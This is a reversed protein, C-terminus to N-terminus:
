YPTQQGVGGPFTSDYFSYALMFSGVRPSFKNQGGEGDGFCPACDMDLTPVATMLINHTM